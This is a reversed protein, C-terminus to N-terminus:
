HSSATHQARYRTIRNVTGLGLSRSEMIKGIERTLSPFTLFILLLESESKLKWFRNFNMTFSFVTFHYLLVFNPM